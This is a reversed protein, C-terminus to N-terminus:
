FGTCALRKEGATALSRGRGERGADDGREKQEGLSALIKKLGASTLQSLISVCVCPSSPPRSPSPTSPALTQRLESERREKAGGEGGEEQTRFHTGVVVGRFSSSRVLSDERRGEGARWGCEALRRSSGEARVSRGVSGCEVVEGGVERERRKKTLEVVEAGSAQDILEPLESRGSRLRRTGESATTCSQACGGEFSVM